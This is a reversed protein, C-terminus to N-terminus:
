EIGGDTGMEAKLAALEDDVSLGTDSYRHALEEAPDDPGTSLEAAAQARDLREQARHAMDDFKGRIESTSDKAAFENIKEQAKAASLTAKINAKRAEMDRIDNVLKDHMQVMQKANLAATQYVQEAEALQVSCENKKALFVKADGDNGAQVAKKALEMYKSVGAMLDDRVRKARKEEAMVAATENKVDALAEKAERLKQDVMKGPDECKDLLANINSSMIDAFRNLIGM